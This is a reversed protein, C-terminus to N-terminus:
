GECGGDRLRWTMLPVSGCPFVWRAGGLPEDEDEDGDANWDRERRGMEADRRKAEMWADAQEVQRQIERCYHVDDMDTTNEEMDPVGAVPGGVDLGAGGEEGAGAGPALGMPSPQFTRCAGGASGSPRPLVTRQSQWTNYVDLMDFESISKTRTPWVNSYAQVFTRRDADTM